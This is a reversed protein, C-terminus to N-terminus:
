PEWVFHVLASLYLKGGVSEMGVLWTEWDLGGNQDTGPFHVSYYNMDKYPWEPQYTAGGVKIQNCV